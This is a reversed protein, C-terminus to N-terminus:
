RTDAENCGTGELARSPITPGPAWRGTWARRSSCHGLLTRDGGTRKWLVTAWTSWFGAAAITLRANEIPVTSSGEERSGAMSIIDALRTAMKWVETRQQVRRDAASLTDSQSIRYEMRDPDFYRSNLQFHAITASAAEDHGDAIVLPVISEEIVRDGGDTVVVMVDRLDYTIPSDGDLRFCVPEEDPM